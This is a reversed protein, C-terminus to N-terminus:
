AELLVKIQDISVSKWYPELKSFSKIPRIAAVQTKEMDFYVEVFFDSVMSLLVIHENEERTAISQSGIVINLQEAEDLSQYETYTM